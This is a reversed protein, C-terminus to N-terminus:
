HGMEKMVLEWILDAPEGETNYMGLDYILASGEQAKFRICVSYHQGPQAPLIVQRRKFAVPYCIRGTQAKGWACAAHFASDLAFPSGLIHPPPVATGGSVM